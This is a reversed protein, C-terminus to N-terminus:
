DNKDIKNGRECEKYWEECEPCFGDGLDVGLWKHGKSCTYTYIM